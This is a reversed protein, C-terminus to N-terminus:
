STKRGHISGDGWSALLADGGRAGWFAGLGLTFLSQSLSLPLPLSLRDGEWRFSLFDILLLLCPFLLHGLGRGMLGEFKLLVLHGGQLSCLSTVLHVSMPFSHPGWLLQFEGKKPLEGHLSEVLMRCFKKADPPMQCLPPSVDPLM